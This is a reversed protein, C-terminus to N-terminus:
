ALPRKKAMGARRPFGEPTPGRKRLVLIGDLGHEVGAALRATTASVRDLDATPGVWLLAAGGASVLPLCLEAAVHPEALAKALAVGYTETPQHEARGWVVSLNPLDATWRTLFDCKRRSAEILTVDRDPLAAALPIGPTGGGSGVDAIPGELKAVLEAARLADEILMRRARAPDRLATLGPTALVGELWRDLVDTV